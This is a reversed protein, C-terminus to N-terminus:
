VGAVRRNGTCVPHDEATHPFSCAASLRGRLLPHKGAPTPRDDPADARGSQQFATIDHPEISASYRRAHPWPGVRFPDPLELLTEAFADLDDRHPQRRRRVPVIAEM